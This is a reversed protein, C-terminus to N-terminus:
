GTRQRRASFESVESALFPPTATTRATNVSRKFAENAILSLASPQRSSEASSGARVRTSRMSDIKKLFTPQEPDFHRRSPLPPQTGKAVSLLAGSRWVIRKDILTSTPDLRLLFLM